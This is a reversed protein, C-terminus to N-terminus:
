LRESFSEIKKLPRGNATYAGAKEQIVMEEGSKGDIEVIDIGFGDLPLVALAIQGEREKPVRVKWGDPGKRGVKIEFEYRVGKILAVVDPSNKGGPAFKVKGGAMAIHAAVLQAAANESFAKELASGDSQASPDHGTMLWTENVNLIQALQARKSARPESLGELWKRAAEKTVPVDFRDKFQRSLWSLRGWERPPAHPHADLTANIRDSLAKHPADDAARGTSQKEVDPM